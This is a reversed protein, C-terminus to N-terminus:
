RRAKRGHCGTSRCSSRSRPGCLSGSPQLDANDPSDSLDAAGRGAGPWSGSGCCGEPRLASPSPAPYVDSCKDHIPADFARGSSDPTRHVGSQKGGDRAWFTGRCATSTSLFILNPRNRTIPLVGYAAAVLAANRGRGAGHPGSHDGACTSNAVSSKGRADGGGQGQVCDTDTPNPLSPLRVSDCRSRLMGEVQSLARTSTGISAL